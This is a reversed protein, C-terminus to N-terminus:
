KLIFVLAQVELASFITAHTVESHKAFDWTLGHPARQRLVNAFRMTKDEVDDSSAAIFLRSPPAAPRQAALLAASSDILSDHNWWLSPDFAAYREFMEPSRLFTEVIFLGALSEGIIARERTTRYRADIAPFLEDRIFTRFERSGGVHPAIASDSKVRTPGTLDRRRETNPIGVVITAPIAEAAILSDVARVIHPFDEDLGGDPMYLVSYRRSGSDYDRPLHVNIQRREHVIRSDIVLSDHAPLQAPIKAAGFALITVFAKWSPMADYCIGLTRTGPDDTM